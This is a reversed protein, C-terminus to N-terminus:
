FVIPRLQRLTFFISFSEYRTLEHMEILNSKGLFWFAIIINLTM